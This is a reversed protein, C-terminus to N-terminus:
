KQKLFDELVKMEAVSLTMNGHAFEGGLVKLVPLKAIPDEATPHMSIAAGEVQAFDGSLMWPAGIMQLVVPKPHRSGVGPIFKLTLTPLPIAKQEKDTPKPLPFTMNQPYPLEVKKKAPLPTSFLKFGVTATTNLEMGHRKFNLRYSNGAREMRIDAIKKPWGGIERGSAMARDTTVYILPVYLWMKGKYLCPIAIILEKYPGVSSERYNAWIHKVASYGPLEPIPLTTVGEPLFAAAAKATTLYDIIVFDSDKWYWQNSLKYLSGIAPMAYPLTKLKLKGAVPGHKAGPIVLRPDPIYKVGKGEPIRSPALPADCEIYWRSIKWKGNRKVLEANYTGTTLLKLKDAHPVKSILMYSRVIAHDATQKVVHINGMTHRRVTEKTSGQSPIIYRHKTFDILLKKGKLIITGIEPGTAEFVLDDTFLNYWEEWRGEDILYSYALVHNVIAQRDAVYQLDKHVNGSYNAEAMELRAPGPANPRINAKQKAAQVVPALVLVAIVM